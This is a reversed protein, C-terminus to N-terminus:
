GTGLKWPRGPLGGTSAVAVVTRPLLAPLMTPNRTQVWDLLVKLQRRQDAWIPEHGTRKILYQRVEVLVDPGLMRCTSTAAFADVEELLSEYVAVPRLKIIALAVM